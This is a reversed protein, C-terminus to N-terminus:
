EEIEFRFCMKCIGKYKKCFIKQMEGQHKEKGCSICKVWDMELNESNHELWQNIGNSEKQIEELLKAIDEFRKNPSM